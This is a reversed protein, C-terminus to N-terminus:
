FLYKLPLFSVKLALFHFFTDKEEDYIGAAFLVLVRLDWSKLLEAQIEYNAHKKEVM